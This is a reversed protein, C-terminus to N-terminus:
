EVILEVGRRLFHRGGNGREIARAAADLREFTIDRTGAGAEGLVSRLEARLRARPEGAREERVIAACRAVAGDLHPFAARLEGLAARVANRRYDLNANSPDVAYPLHEADCYTALAEPEAALLPRVLEVNSGLPRVRAMGALGSPGTGRFLALLVTEAQDRAHHASFVRRAACAHAIATLAAYREDRLREEAASGAPLAATV